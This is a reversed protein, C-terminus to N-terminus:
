SIVIQRFPCIYVFNYNLTSQLFNLPSCHVTSECIPLAKYHFNDPKPILQPQCVLKARALKFGYGGRRIPLILTMISLKPIIITTVLNDQPNSIIYYIRPIYNISLLCHVNNLAWLLFAPCTHGNRCKLHPLQIEPFSVVIKCDGFQYIFLDAWIRM